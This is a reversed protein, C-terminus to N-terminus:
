KKNPKFHLECSKCYLSHGFKNFIFIFFLLILIMFIFSSFTTIPTRSFAGSALSGIISMIALVVGIGVLCGLCSSTKEVVAGSNCRPCRRWRM